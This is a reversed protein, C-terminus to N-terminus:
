TASKKNAGRFKSKKAAPEPPDAAVKWSGEPRDTVAKAFNDALAGDKFRLHLCSTVIAKSLAGLDHAHKYPCGAGATCVAVKGASDVVKLQHMINYAFYMKDRAAAQLEKQTRPNAAPDASPDPKINGDGSRKHAASAPGAVPVAVRSQIEGWLGVDTAFFLNHGNDTWGNRLRRADALTKVVTSHMLKACSKGDVLCITEDVASRKQTRVDEGYTQLMLSKHYLLYTDQFRNWLNNDMKFSSILPQLAGQFDKHSYCALFTELYEFCCRLRATEDPDHRDRAFHSDNAAKRGQFDLLSFKSHDLIVALLHLASYLHLGADKHPQDFEDGKAKITLCTQRLREHDFQLEHVYTEMKEPSLQRTM